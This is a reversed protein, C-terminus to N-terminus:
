RRRRRWDFGAVSERSRGLAKGIETYSSGDVLMREFTAIEDSTWPGVIKTPARVAAPIPMFRPRGVETHYTRVIM